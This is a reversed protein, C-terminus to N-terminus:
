GFFDVLFFFLVIGAIFAVLLGLIFVVIAKQKRSSDWKDPEYGYQKQFAQGFLIGFSVGFAPGLAVNGLPVAIAFGIGMGFAMGMAMCQQRTPKKKKAM